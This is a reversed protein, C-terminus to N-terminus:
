CRRVPRGYNCRANRRRVSRPHTQRAGPNDRPLARDLHDLYWKLEPKGSRTELYAEFSSALGEAFLARGAECNALLAQARGALLFPLLVDESIELGAECGQVDRIGAGPLVVRRPKDTSPLYASKTQRHIWPALHEQAQKMREETARVREVVQGILGEGAGSKVHAWWDDAPIVQGDANRLHDETLKGWSRDLRLAAKQAEDLVVWLHELRKDFEARQILGNDSNWNVGKFRDLVNILEAHGLQFPTATLFLMRQFKGGLAGGSVIFESDQAAEPEVFLSALRTSPNKLHHAEDLILLPSEFEARTLALEWIRSM